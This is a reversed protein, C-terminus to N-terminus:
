FTSARFVFYVPRYCVQRQGELYEILSKQIHSMLGEQRELQRVLNEMSLVQIFGLLLVFAYCSETVAPRILLCDLAYSVPLTSM